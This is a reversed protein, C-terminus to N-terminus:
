ITDEPRALVYRCVAGGHVRTVHGCLWRWLKHRESMTTGGEPKQGTMVRTFLSFPRKHSAPSCRHSHHPQCRRPGAGHVLHTRTMSIGRLAEGAPM